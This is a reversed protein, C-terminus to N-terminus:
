GKILEQPILPHDFTITMGKMRVLNCFAIGWLCLVRDKWSDGIISRLMKKHTSTIIPLQEHFLESDNKYIAELMLGYPYLKQYQKTSYGKKIKELFMEINEMGRGLIFAVLIRYLWDAIHNPKGSYDYHDDVFTTWEKVEEFNQVLLSDMIEEYGYTKMNPDKQLVENYFAQRYELGTKAHERFLKTDQHLHYELVGLKQYLGALTDKEATRFTCNEDNMRALTSPIHDEKLNKYAEEIPILM